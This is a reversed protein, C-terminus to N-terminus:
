AHDSRLLHYAFTGAIAGLPPAVLYLWLSTLEGSVLAPGLSRAPNMSAGTAPGAFLAALGVTAGIALAAAQGVARSDTAVATIVFMLFFALIVELLFAEAEQITPRTAGLAATDGFLLRLLLSAALAGSLQALWYPAVDRLQFHRVAAFALTVAPNIHAGSIHGLAYIVVMVTLGFSAAVGEHSIAEEHTASIVIAGTGAFVLMFTGVAEAAARQLLPV